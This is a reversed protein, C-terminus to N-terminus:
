FSQAVGAGAAHDAFVLFPRPGASQEREEAGRWQTFVVGLVVTAAALVGTTVLLANTRTQAAHASDYGRKAEVSTARPQQSYTVYADNKSRTNLGSWVTLAGAVGTVAASTWFVWVPARLGHTTSTIAAAHATPPEVGRVAPTPPQETEPPPAIPTAMVLLEISETSLAGASVIVERRVPYYGELTVELTVQGAVVRLPKSLPLTGVVKGDLSVQSNPLGGRIQITGRRGRITELATELAHKHQRIWPDTVVSLADQLHTEADAWRGLAQEALSRQAMARPSRQLEYAREFRELAAADDGQERLQLGEQILQDGGAYPSTSQARAADAGQWCLSLVTLCLAFLDRSWWDGLHWSRTHM